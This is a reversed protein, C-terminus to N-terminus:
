THIEIILRHNCINACLCCLQSQTIYNSHCLPKEYLLLTVVTTWAQYGGQSRRDRCVLRSFFSKQFRLTEGEAARQKLLFFSKDVETVRGLGEGEMNADRSTCVVVVFM